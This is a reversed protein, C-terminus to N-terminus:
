KKKARKRAAAVEIERIAAKKAEKVATKGGVPGYVDDLVDDPVQELTYDLTAQTARAKRAQLVISIVILSGGIGVIWPAWFLLQEVLLFCVIMVIGFAAGAIAKPQWFWALAVSLSIIVGAITYIIMFYDERGSAVQKSLKAIVEDKKQESEIIASLQRNRAQLVATLQNIRIAKDTSSDAKEDIITLEPDIVGSKDKDRADDVANKITRQDEVIGDASEKVGELDKANDGQQEELVGTNDPLIEPINNCCVFCFALFFICIAARM